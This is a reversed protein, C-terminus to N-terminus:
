GEEVGKSGAVGLGAADEEVGEVEDCAEVTGEEGVGDEERSAVGDM